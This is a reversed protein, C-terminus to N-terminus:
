AHLPPPRNGHIYKRRSRSNDTHTEQRQMYGFYHEPRMFVIAQKWRRKVNKRKLSKPITDIVKNLRRMLSPISHKLLDKQQDESPLLYGFNDLLTYLVVSRADPGFEGYGHFGKELGSV